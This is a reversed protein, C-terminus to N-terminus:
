RDQAIQPQGANKQKYYQLRFFDGLHHRSRGYGDIRQVRDHQSAARV